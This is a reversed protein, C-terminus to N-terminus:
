LGLDQQGAESGRRAEHMRRVNEERSVEELHHPNVCGTNRCKHDLTMNPDPEKGHEIEWSIRHAQRFGGKWRAKGYGKRDRSGAWEWCDNVEDAGKDVNVMFVKAPDYQRWGRRRRSM